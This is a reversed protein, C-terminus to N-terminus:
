LSCPSKMKLLERRSVLDHYCSVKVKRKRYVVYAKKKLTSQWILGCRALWRTFWRANYWSDFVLYVFPLSVIQMEIIMQQALQLRTRYRHPACKDRPRWLRFAVLIKV